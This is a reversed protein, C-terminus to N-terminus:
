GAVELILEAISRAADPRAIRGAAVAMADLRERDTLLTELVPPLRQELHDDDLMVAAGGAVLYEANARQNVGAIPLPVLVAPTRTAPLEGLTSAGARCLCLDAAAMGDAMEEPGLYPFLHYRERAASSLHALAPTVEPLRENGTVHIVHGHELLWHLCAELARNLSRSGLSGGTVLLVTADDPIGFRARGGERTAALFEERVPYGTVIVRKKPLYRVSDETTVAVTRTFPLLRSVAKGPMVDPLFLVVPVRLLWSALAAPVSVYGGTGFTVRPRTRLVLLLARVSALALLAAGRISTPPAMPMFCSKMGTGAVLSREM